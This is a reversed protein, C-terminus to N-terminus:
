RAIGLVGVGFCSRRQPRRSRKFILPYKLVLVMEFVYRGILLGDGIDRAASIVCECKTEETVLKVCNKRLISRSYDNDEAFNNDQAAGARLGTICAILICSALLYKRM